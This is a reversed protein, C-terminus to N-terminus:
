AAHPTPTRPTTGPHGGRQAPVNRHVGFSQPEAADMGHTRALAQINHVDAVTVPGKIAMLGVMRTATKVDIGREILAQRELVLLAVEMECGFLDTLKKAMLDGYGCFDRRIRENRDTGIPWVAVGGLSEVENADFCAPQSDDVVLKGEMNTVGLQRLRVARTVASVIVDSEQVLEATGSLPVFRNPNAAMLKAVNRAIDDYVSIRANPYLEALIEAAPAGIAGLGIVGLRAVDAREPNAHDIANAIQVITGGHGTTTVVDDRRTKEGFRMLRPFTAGYGIAWVGLGDAALDVADNVMNRATMVAQSASQKGLDAELDGTVSACVLYGRKGDETEKYKDVVWPPTGRLMAAQHVAPVYRLVHILDKLEDYEPTNRSVRPPVVFAFSGDHKDKQTGKSEWLDFASNVFAETADAEFGTIHRGWRSHLYKALGNLRNGVKERDYVAYDQVTGPEFLTADHWRLWAEADEQITKLTEPDLDHKADEAAARAEFYNNLSAHGDPMPAEEATAVAEPVPGAGGNAVRGDPGAILGGPMQSPVGLSGSWLQELPPTEQFRPVSVLTM